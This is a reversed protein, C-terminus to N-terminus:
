KAMPSFASFFPSKITEGESYYYNGQKLLGQTEKPLEGGDLLHSILAAACRSQAANDNKVTGVMESDKVAQVGQLLGGGLRRVHHEQAALVDHAVGVVRVVHHFGEDGHAGLVAHVNEANEVADWKLTWTDEDVSIGTPAKLKNINCASLSMICAFAVVLSIVCTMIKKM